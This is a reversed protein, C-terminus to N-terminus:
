KPPILRPYPAAAPTAVVAATVTHAKPEVFNIGSIHVGPSKILQVIFIEEGQIIIVSRM